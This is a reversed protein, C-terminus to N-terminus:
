CVGISMGSNLPIKLLNLPQKKLSAFAMRANALTNMRIGFAAVAYSGMMGIITWLLILMVGGIGFFPMAKM